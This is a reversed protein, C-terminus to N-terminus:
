PCGLAGGGRAVGKCSHCHAKRKGTNIDNLSVTTTRTEFLISLSFWKEIKSEPSSTQHFIPCAAAESVRFLYHSTM